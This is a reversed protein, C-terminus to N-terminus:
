KRRLSMEWLRGYKAMVSAASLCALLAGRSGDLWGGRLLYASVFRAPPRVIVEWIGARRGRSFNQDAWSRSYRSFKEFYHDLDPYPVHDLQGRLTGPEEAVIVHEHVKSDDYRLSKRFLRVPRDGSGGWGGHSIERGLFFNRRGIRFASNAPGADILHQIEGALAPSCREDADLVLIWDHAAREIAWNRQGGITVFPHQHVVAGAAGALEITNDTSDNEVVLIEAAWNLSAICAEINAAENRAAIVASVPAGHKERLRDPSGASRANSDRSSIM